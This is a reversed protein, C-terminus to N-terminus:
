RFAFSPLLQMCYAFLLVPNHGIWVESLQNAIAIVMLEACRATSMRETDDEQSSGYVQLWIYCSFLINIWHQCVLLTRGDLLAKSWLILKNVIGPYSPLKSGHKETEFVYEIYSCHHLHLQAHVPWQYVASNLLDPIVV